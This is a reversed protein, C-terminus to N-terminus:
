EFLYKTCHVVDHYMYLVEYELGCINRHRPSLLLRVSDYELQGTNLNEGMDAHPHATIDSDVVIM